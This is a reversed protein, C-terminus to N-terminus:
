AMRGVAALLRIHDDRQTNAEQSIVAVSPPPIVISADPQKMLIAENLNFSDYAHTDSIVLKQLVILLERCVPKEIGV